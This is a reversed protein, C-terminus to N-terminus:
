EQRAAKCRCSPKPHDCRRMPRTSPTLAPVTQRQIRRALSPSWPTAYAPQTTLQLNQMPSHCIRCGVSACSIVSEQPRNRRTFLRIATRLDGMTEVVISDSRDEEDDDELRDCWWRGCFRYVTAIGGLSFIGDTTEEFGEAVIAAATLPADDIEQLYALAVVTFSNIQDAQNGLREAERHKGDAILGVGKRCFEIADHLEQRKEPTGFIRKM